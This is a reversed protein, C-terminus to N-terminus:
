LFRKPVTTLLAHRYGLEGGGSGGGGKALCGGAWEEVFIEERM